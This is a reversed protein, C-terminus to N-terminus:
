DAFTIAGSGSALYARFQTYGYADAPNVAYYTTGALQDNPVLNATATGNVDTVATVEGAIQAGTVTDYGATKEGKGNVLAFKLSVGTLLTAGDPKYLPGINVTRPTLM